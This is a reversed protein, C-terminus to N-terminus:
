AKPKLEIGALSESLRAVATHDQGQGLSKGASAWMQRCLAAFPTPTGTDDAMGLAIGLDKVMLDLGFGSNFARSLVFQKFKKQTSNNMGTSANLVDVIVDPDLGFQQGILMAEVGILFGGASVLNNLAKMAHASGVTGTHVVSSGMTQLLTRVRELTAAEGGFMIALEGTRARPVGGSVPADVLEGGAAGVLAALRQTHAPVGSSMEVIITGPQLGALVGDAGSLVQEVIASTPLMTVIIDSQRALTQCDAAAQGGVEAAFRGAQGPAADFVTLPFGAQHLQHAMPWGMSGVGIFGVRPASM